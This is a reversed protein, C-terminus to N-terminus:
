RMGYIRLILFSLALHWSNSYKHAPATTIDCARDVDARNGLSYFVLLAHNEGGVVLIHAGLRTLVYNFVSDFLIVKRADYDARAGGTHVLSGETLGRRRCPKIGIHDLYGIDTLLARPYM